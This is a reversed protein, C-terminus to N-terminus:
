PAKKTYEFLRGFGGTSGAPLEISFLQHGIKWFCKVYEYFFFRDFRTQTSKKKFNKLSFFLTRSLLM